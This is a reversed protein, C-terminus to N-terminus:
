CKDNTLSRSLIKTSSCRTLSHCIPFEQNQATPTIGRPHIGVPYAFDLPVNTDTSEKGKGISEGERIRLSRYDGGLDEGNLEVKVDIGGWTRSLVAAKLLTSVSGGRSNAWAVYDIVIDSCVLGVGNELTFDRAWLIAASKQLKFGRGLNEDQIVTFYPHDVQKSTGFDVLISGDDSVLSCDDLSFTPNPRYIEVFYRGILAFQFDKDPKAL